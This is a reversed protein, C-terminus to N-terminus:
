QRDGRSAPVPVPMAIFAIDGRNNDPVLVKQKVIRGRMMQPAASAPQSQGFGAPLLAPEDATEPALERRRMERKLSEDKRVIARLLEESLGQKALLALGEASTDFRGDKSKILDLLFDESLGSEAM